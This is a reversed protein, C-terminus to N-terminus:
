KGYAKCKGIQWPGIRRDGQGATRGSGPDPLVRWLLAPDAPGAPYVRNGLQGHVCPAVSGNRLKEAHIQGPDKPDGSPDACRLPSGAGRGSLHDFRRRLLSVYYALQKGGFIFPVTNSCLAM